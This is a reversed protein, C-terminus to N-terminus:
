DEIICRILFGLVPFPCNGTGSMCIGWRGYELLKGLGAGRLVDVVGTLGVSGAGDHQVRGSHLVEQGCVNVLIRGVKHVHFGQMEWGVGVGLVSLIFSVQSGM